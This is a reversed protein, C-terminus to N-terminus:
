LMGIEEDIMESFTRLRTEVNRRAEERTKNSLFAHSIPDGWAFIGRTFPLAIRLRDWSRLTLCKKTSYTFPIIDVKALRSLMEVGAHAKYRPGRPGDPTIGVYKGQRLLRIMEILATQGDRTSSGRVSEIDFFGIVSSILQADPHSSILVFLPQNRVWACPAMVLRNHWFCVIFPRGSRYYSEPIEQGITSWRGTAFVFRIWWSLIRAVWKRVCCEQLFAKISKRTM